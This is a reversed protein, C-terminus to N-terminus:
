LPSLRRRIRKAYENVPEFVDVECDFKNIVDAAFDGIYGGADIVIADERLPYDLRISEGGADIYMQYAIAKQDRKVYAYM